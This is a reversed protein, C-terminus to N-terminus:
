AKLFQSVLTIFFLQCSTISSLDGDGKLRSYIFNIPKFKDANRQTEKSLHLQKIIITLITFIYFKKLLFNDFNIHFIKRFSVFFSM